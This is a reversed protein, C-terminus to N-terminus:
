DPIKMNVTNLARKPGYYLNLNKVELKIPEVLATPSM